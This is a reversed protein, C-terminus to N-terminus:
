RRMLAAKVRDAIKHGQYDPIMQAQENLVYLMLRTRGRFILWNASVALLREEAIANMIKFMVGDQTEAEIMLTPLHFVQDMQFEANIGQMSADRYVETSLMENVSYRGALAERLARKVSEATKTPVAKGGQAVVLQIFLLMPEQIQGYLKIDLTSLNYAALVGFLDRLIEPQNRYAVYITSRDAEHDFHIVVQRDQEQYRYALKLNQLQIDSTVFQEYFKPFWQNFRKLREQTSPKLSAAM